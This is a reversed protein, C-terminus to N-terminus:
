DNILLNAFLPSGFNYTRQGSVKMKEVKLVKMLYKLKIVGANRFSPM